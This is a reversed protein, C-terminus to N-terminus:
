HTTQVFVAALSTFLTAVVSLCCLLITAFGLFRHRCDPTDNDTSKKETDLNRRRNGIGFVVGIGIFALLTYGGITLRMPLLSADRGAVKEIWIATTVYCLIFHGAWIMPAATLLWLSQKSEHSPGKGQYIM